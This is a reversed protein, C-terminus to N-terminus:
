AQQDEMEARITALRKRARETINPIRMGHPTNLYEEVIYQRDKLQTAGQGEALQVVLDARASYWILEPFEKRIKIVMDRGSQLLFYDTRVVHGPRGKKRRVVLDAQRLVALADELDEYAGFLYRLMPYRRLEPEESDLIDASLGLLALDRDGNEFDNLLQKGSLRSESGM